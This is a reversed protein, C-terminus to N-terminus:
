FLCNCWGSLFNIVGFLYDLKIGSLMLILLDFGVFGMFELNFVLKEDCNVWIM